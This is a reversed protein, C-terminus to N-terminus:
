QSQESSKFEEKVQLILHTWFKKVLTRQAPTLDSLKVPKINMQVRIEGNTASKPVV